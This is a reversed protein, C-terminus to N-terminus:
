LVTLNLLVSKNLYIYICIYMDKFYILIFMNMCNKVLMFM